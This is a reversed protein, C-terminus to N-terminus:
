ELEDLCSWKSVAGQERTSPSTERAESPVAASGGREISAEPMVVFRGIGMMEHPVAASGGGEMSVGPTAAFRSAGVLRSSPGIIQGTEAPRVSESGGAHFPFPGQTSLQTGTLSDEGELVDWDMDAAVEDFEDDDDDSGTEEGRDRAQQKRIM